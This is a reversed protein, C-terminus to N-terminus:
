KNLWKEYRKIAKVMTKACKRQFEKSELLKQEELNTFFLMELLIAPCYTRKVMALHGEKDLQGAKGKRHRIGPFTAKFEEVWFKALTDSKTEGVSTWVEHGHAQPNFNPAANSHISILISDKEYNLKNVKKIRSRLSVDRHDNPAVTFCVEYGNLKLEKAFEVGFERNNVGEYLISGDLRPLSRKGPTTYEGTLPNIGGHGLDLIVRLSSM